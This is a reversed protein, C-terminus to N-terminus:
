DQKPSQAEQVKMDTEKGLDSPFNETIIAELLNVTGKEKGEVVQILIIHFTIHKLNEWLDWVAQNDKKKKKQETETIEVVTKWVASESRKM